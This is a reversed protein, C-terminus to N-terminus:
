IAYSHLGPMLYNVGFYTMLVIIFAALIWLNFGKRTSLFRLSAGHLPLAYVLFTILAWTEKADWGWYRGWSQNAWVAGIFIGVGMLAVAPFLLIRNLQTAAESREVSCLAVGATVAMIAFLAFAIMVSMVHISLLPSNLVPMLHGVVRGSYSMTAVALAMLAVFNAALAVTLYRRALILAAVLIFLAFALMTELGGAIPFYGGVYGRAALMSLIMVVAVSTMVMFGCHRLRQSGVLLVLISVVVVLLPWMPTGWRVYIREVAMRTRDDINRAALFSEQGDAISSIVANAANNRGHSILNAFQAVPLKIAEWRELPLWSPMEDAWSLWEVKGEPTEVPFIKMIAGTCVQSVLDVRAIADAINKSPLTGYSEPLFRGGRYFDRLAVRSADTGLLEKIESGKIKIIPETKWSDYYFIWGALVQEATLGRYSTSGSIAMCFDNALTSVPCIRGQYFVRLRGFNAALPRQLTKPLDGHDPGDAATAPLALLLALATLTRSIFARYGRKASFLYYLATLAFLIYGAYSLAIGVPDHSVQLRCDADSIDTLFFRYGSVEVVKNVAVIQPKDISSFALTASYNAPTTTAPYYTVECSLLGVSFPLPSTKGDSEVFSEAPLGNATLTIFGERAAFHTVGAGALILLLSIHVWFRAGGLKERLKVVTVLATMGMVFWIIITPWSGYFRNYAFEPGCIKDAVSAAALLLILILLSAFSIKRM